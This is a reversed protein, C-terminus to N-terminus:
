YEKVDDTMKSMETKAFLVQIDPYMKEENKELM